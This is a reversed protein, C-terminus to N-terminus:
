LKWEDNICKNRSESRSQISQLRTLWWVSHTYTHLLSLIMVLSHNRFVTQGAPDRSASPPNRIYVMGYWAFSLFYFESFNIVFCNWPDWIWMLIAIQEPWNISRYSSSHSVHDFYIYLPFIVKQKIPTFMITLWCWCWWRMVLLVLLVTVAYASLSHVMGSPDYVLLLDEYWGQWFFMKLYFWNRYNREKM